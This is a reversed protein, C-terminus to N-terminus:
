WGDTYHGAAFSLTVRPVASNGGHITEGSRFKAERVHLLIRTSLISHIVRLFTNFLQATVSPAQLMIAVNLASIACLILYYTVGDRYLTVILPNRTHRYNKLGIWLTYAMIITDNILVIIFPIGAYIVDGEVLYCGPIFSSPPPGYTVTREFLALLVISASIGIIWLTTFFVLVGRKRGSLAYTRLVLIAEAVAIGFVTGWSSAAQLQACQKFPINNVTSYYLLIPVDFAPSYRSMLYLAKSFTWRSDWILSVEADLTLGYDFLLITLDVVHMYRVTQMRSALLQSTSM